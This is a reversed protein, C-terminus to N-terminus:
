FNDQSAKALYGLYKLVISWKGLPACFSTRLWTNRLAFLHQSFSDTGNLYCKKLVLLYQWLNLNCILCRYFVPTELYLNKPHFFKTQPILKHQNRIAGTDDRITETNNRQLFFYKWVQPTVRKDRSVPSLSSKMFWSKFCNNWCFDSAFEWDM